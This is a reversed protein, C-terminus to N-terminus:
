SLYVAEKEARAYRLRPCRKRSENGVSKERKLRLPKLSSVWAATDIVSLRVRQADRPFIWFDM